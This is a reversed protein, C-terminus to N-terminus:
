LINCIDFSFFLFSCCKLITTFKHTYFCGFEAMRSYDSGKRNPNNKKQEIYEIETEIDPQDKIDLQKGKDGSANYYITMTGNDFLVVRNVFLDIM